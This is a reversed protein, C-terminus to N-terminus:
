KSLLGLLLLGGLFVLWGPIGGVTEEKTIVAVPRKVKQGFM